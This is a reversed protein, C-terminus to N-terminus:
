PGPVGARQGRVARCTQAKQYDSVVIRPFTTGGVTATAEDLRDATRQGLESVAVRYEEDLGEGAAVEAIEAALDFTAMGLSVAEGVGPFEGVLGAAARTITMINGTVKTSNPVDVSRDISDAVATM